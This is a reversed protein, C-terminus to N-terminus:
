VKSFSADRKEINDYTTIIYGYICLYTLMSACVQLELRIEAHFGQKVHNM